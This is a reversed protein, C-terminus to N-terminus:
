VERGEIRKIQNCNACLLQYKNEKDAIVAKYFKRPSNKYLTMREKYGGGNMHDIQLAHVDNFGCRCCKNGLIKFALARWKRVNISAHSLIQGPLLPPVLEIDPTANLRLKREARMNARAQESMHVGKNLSIQGKKFRTSKGAEIFLALNAPANGM